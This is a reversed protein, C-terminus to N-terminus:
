TGFSRLSLKLEDMMASKVAEKEKKTKALLLDAAHKQIVANVPGRLHVERNFDKVSQEASDSRKANEDIALVNGAESVRNARRKNAVARYDDAEQQLMRNAFSELEVEQDFTSKEDEFAGFLDFGTQTAKGANAMKRAATEIERTSWDKGETERDALKKFLLDQLAPDKLHKAVALATTEDLRGETVKQFAKDNLATLTVADSALKGSMSIGAERLHDLTQGSDRLYKAADIASGRGEAINALAGRARAEKANPADIYRANIHDANLRSALEHRHHGNIVYDQGDSPDRWVLLSGALEPNWKSVGKLEGTVGDEGIDKVKYQFRKPDVKLSSTPVTYIDRNNVQKPTGNEHFKSAQSDTQSVKGHLRDAIKAVLQPKAGGARIGHEKQMERLQKVTLISLHETVTKLSAPSRPGNLAETIKEKAASAAEPSNKAIFRGNPGRPHDIATWAMRKIGYIKDFMSEADDGYLSTLIEAIAEAQEDGNESEAGAVRTQDDIGMRIPDAKGLTVEINKGSQLVIFARDLVRSEGFIPGNAGVLSSADNMYAITVHPKYEPHTCVAPIRKRLEAYMKHLDPSDVCVHLPAGDKGSPFADLQFFTALPAQMNSLADLVNQLEEDKFGYLLTVHSEQERDGSALQDDAINAQFERIRGSLNETLHFMLCAYKHVQGSLNPSENEEIALEDSDDSDPIVEGIVDFLSFKIPDAQGHRKQRYATMLGAFAEAMSEAEANTPWLSAEGSEDSLSSLYTNKRGKTELQKKVHVEFSRAFCEISSNWYDRKGESLKGDRIMKSVVGRVRRMFPKAAEQWSAMAGRIEPDPLEKVTFEDDGRTRYAEATAANVRLPYGRTKHTVEHTHSVDVDSMYKGGDRGIGFGGLMHDFAHGWEHAFTGVGSNRTMNIVQNGPEYHAAATGHGRAGVALGLKGDLSIDKPHLGTVDALDAIAEVMRAAHHKRESDTVSNGWQFGRLGYEDILHDVAKNPDATISALDRGGMREAKQGYLNKLEFDKRKAGTKSEKGFTANISKGEIVDKAHEAAKELMIRKSEMGQPSNDDNFANTWEDGYKTKLESAFENLKGYTTTKSAYRSVELSNALGILNNALNDFRNAKRRENVIGMVHSQLRRISKISDKDDHTSAIEEAKAKISQYAAVYDSRLEPTNKTNKGYVPNPPFGKMAFHMALSTLPARDAHEMLNHPELKLLMDRNVLKEATGDTEASALGKWANVKHRASNKLDEGRNGVESDRAFEYEKKTEEQQDAAKAAERPDAGSEEAKSFAETAAAPTGDANFVQTSGDPYVFPKKERAKPEGAKSESSKDALATDSSAQADEKPTETGADDKPTRRGRDLRDAIKEVLSQKTKGAASVGYEQKLERLQKGNLLSLHEVLKKASEPTKNSQLSEKVADKAASVAEASYKPIFRGNPGRPHDIANWSGMKQVQSGFMEDFHSEADDGYIHELIEAIAEARELAEEDSDEGDDSEKLSLRLVGNDLARRAAEVISSASLVGRGVADVPDLTGMRQLMGQDAPNMIGSPDGHMAQGQDTGAQKQGQQEMASQALPKHTIEYEVDTGFNMRAIPDLTRRIDCLIQVVWSDLGSYFAALPLSKGEWSGAGDNSIAGDPIEMGQRIEADLDKPYRLIHEPNSAVTAEAIIWKENGQDDRTSPYTLTGGAQRQEVIQLAIDRAPVPNDNGEVFVSEEPYGVKMGGYADKHMYLRRTDLAGGNLWKDCWPSYAGLLIPCSYREGDEPRFNIFYCYPFPLQVVGMNKVNDIQVGWPTGAHEWEMLRCDRAHRHLLQDIEILNSDSLRLTVEGAAWGWVQSRMIGPLYNNWITQLQRLVWAAVVPNKAKVGPIWTPKGDEGIGDQYAFEVSQLPAARMALCLRVQPDRLMVRITEFTFLPLDRHQNFYVYHPGRYHQTRPNGRPNEKTPVTMAKAADGTPRNGVGVYTEFEWSQSM